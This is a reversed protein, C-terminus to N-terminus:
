LCINGLQVLEELSDNADDSSTNNVQYTAVDGAVATGESGTVTGSIDPQQTYEDDDYYIYM